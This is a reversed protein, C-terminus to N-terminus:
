LLCAIPRFTKRHEPCPGHVSLAQQHEATGYSKHRAFGYEPYQRDLTGMLADRHEKALISAAAIPAHSADGGVFAEMPWGSFSWPPLRNGDVWLFGTAGRPLRGQLEEFARQMALFSAQLINLSDIEAASAEGIGWALAQIHILPVLKARAAPSLKKSDNLGALPGRLCVAAAVVPGAWCGRGAEDLGVTISAAPAHILPKPMPPVTCGPLRLQM